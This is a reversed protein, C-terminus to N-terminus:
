VLCKRSMTQMRRVEKLEKDTWRRKVSRIVWHKLPLRNKKRTSRMAATYADLLEDFLKVKVAWAQQVLVFASKRLKTHETTKAVVARGTWNYNPIPAAISSPTPQV